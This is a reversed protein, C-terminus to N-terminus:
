LLSFRLRNVELFMDTFTSITWFCLVTISVMQLIDDTGCFFSLPSYPPHTEIFVFWILLLQVSFTIAIEFLLMALAYTYKGYSYMRIRNIERIRKEVDPDFFMKQKDELEKKIAGYEMDREHQVLMFCVTAGYISNPLQVWNELNNEKLSTYEKGTSPYDFCSLVM